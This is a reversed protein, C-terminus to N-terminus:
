SEYVEMLLSNEPWKTIGGAAFMDDAMRDRQFSRRRSKRSLCRECSKFLVNMTM